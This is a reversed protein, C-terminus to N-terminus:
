ATYGEDVLLSAGTIFSAAPSAVFAILSAVARGGSAGIERLVQEAKNPSSSCTIAVAAGDAALRKAIAAGLSRSGGTVIACRGNLPSNM